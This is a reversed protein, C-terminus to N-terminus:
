ATEEPHCADCTWGAPTYRFQGQHDTYQRCPNVWEAERARGRMYGQHSENSQSDNSDHPTNPVNRSHSGGDLVVKAVVYGHGTRAVAGDDVLRTVMNQVNTRSKGIRDAIAQPFIPGAEEIVQYVESRDFTAESLSDPASRWTLDDFEASVQADAIDRGTAHITGVREMPKRRIVVITDASGTIGYTGSVSALFDDATEKRAHHVIVLAVTRDRFLDQLRALHAVDVEYAGQRGTTHPRVKGLTDIAVMVADPHSDLWAELDDELGEGIKNADWRVELRGHPMTRGALAALLRDQGRRKGDELALYLVSGPAVRRGLLEGGISAEVAIQYVLCSKGVKPRAALITTGEPILEPVLWRLPPLDLALLDAADIGPGVVRPARRPEQATTPPGLKEPTGKWAREFRARLEPETLPQAFRPALVSLM